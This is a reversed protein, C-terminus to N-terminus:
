LARLVALQNRTRVLNHEPHRIKYYVDGALWDTLFRLAQEGVMWRAGLLLNEREVDTLFIATEELFGRTLAELIAPRVVVESPDDEYRDPAFTRVMDGFDSLLTGPMVTDLDIVALAKRTRVDFLVNGAKTDNHTARLPLAGSKKLHSVHEFIPKAAFVAEIEAQSHEVRRAPNEKLIQLFVEWRRDTDHFGPITEALEHAPFDRLARAFAGYARAAEYAIEADALGEPAFSDAFFPFARWYNGAADRQLFDGNLAAAPAAVRYPYDQAALHDAVARLNRMVAAPDKFVLHNLRQLLFSERVGDRQFDIRYTDNINGNGLPAAALWQEFHFFQRALQELTSANTMPANTMPANTMLDNTM